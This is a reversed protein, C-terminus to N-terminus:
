NWISYSSTCKTKEPLNLTNKLSQQQNEESVRLM